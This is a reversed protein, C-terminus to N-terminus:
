QPIVGAFLTSALEYSYKDKIERVIQDVTLRVKVSNDETCLIMGEHHTNGCVAQEGSKEFQIEKIDTIKNNIKSEIIKRAQSETIGGFFVVNIDKAGFIAKYKELKLGLIENFKETGTSDFYENIAEEVQEDYFSVLFREKELPVYAEANKELQVLKNKYYESREKVAKEVKDNVGSLISQAEQQAKQLIKSAKKKADSEIERDLIETSRLEEM